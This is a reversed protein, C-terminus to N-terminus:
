DRPRMGLAYFVHHPVYVGDARKFPELQEDVAARLAGLEDSSLREMTSRLGLTWLNAWWEDEDAFRFATTEPVIEVCCFGADDLLADLGEASNVAPGADAGQDADEDADLRYPAFADLLWDFCGETVVTLAVRGGPRLVRYFEQAAHPFAWIAHGCLLVDFSADAIALRGADMRCLTAGDLGARDLDAATQRLMESTLDVGVV